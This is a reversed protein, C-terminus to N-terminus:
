TRRPINDVIVIRAGAEDDARVGFLANLRDVTALVTRSAERPLDEPVYGAPDAEGSSQVKQDAIALTRRLVKAAEVSDWLASRAMDDRLEAVRARVLGSAALRCAKQAVTAASGRMSYGAEAYAERQQKGAAIAVAFAEQRATLKTM